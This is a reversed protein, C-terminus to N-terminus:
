ILDRYNLYLARPNKSVYPSMYNYVSRTWNIHREAAATADKEEEEWQAYYLIKYLDGARHMFLIESELIESMKGRYPFLQILGVGVDDEYLRELM